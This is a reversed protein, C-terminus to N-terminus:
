SILGRHTQWLQNPSIGHERIVPDLLVRTDTVLESSAALKVYLDVAKQRGAVQEVARFFSGSLEYNFTNRTADATFFGDNAPLPVDLDSGSPKYTSWHRKILAMSQKIEEDGGASDEAWEAFGEIAWTPKNLREHAGGFYTDTLLYPGIAHAIEHAMLTYARQDTQVSSMKLVIRCGAMSDEGPIVIKPNGNENSITVCDVYGGVGGISATRGFGFWQTFERDDALFIVFGNPARRGGWLSRVFTEARAATAAYAAPDWQSGESALVTVTGQRASRLAVDDWPADFVPDGFRPKNADPSDYSLHAVDMVRANDGTLAMTYTYDGRTLAVDAELQMVLHVTYRSVVVNTPQDSPTPTVPMGSNYLLTFKVPRLQQWNRFRVRERALVETKGPDIDALWAQENGDRVASSRRDLVDTVLRKERQLSDEWARSSATAKAVPTTADGAANIIAAVLVLLVVGIAAISLWVV